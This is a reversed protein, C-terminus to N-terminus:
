AANRYYYQLLGGLRERCRIEGTPYGVEGNPEAPQVLFVVLGTVLKASLSSYKM